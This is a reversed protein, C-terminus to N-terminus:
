ACRVQVLVGLYSWIEPIQEEDAEKPAKGAAPQASANQPLLGELVRRAPNSANPFATRIAILIATASDKSKRITSISRLVRLTFRSDFTEVAQAFHCGGGDQYSDFQTSEVVCNGPDDERAWVFIEVLQPSDEILQDADPDRQQRQTVELHHELLHSLLSSRPVDSISRGTLDRGIEKAM